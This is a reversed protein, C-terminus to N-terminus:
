PAVRWARFGGKVKRISAKFESKGYRRFNAASQYLRKGNIGAKAAPVFFSDGVKLARWPFEGTNARPPMAIKTEIAYNM